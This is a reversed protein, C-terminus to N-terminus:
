DNEFEKAISPKTINGNKDVFGDLATKDIAGVIQTQIWRPIPQYPNISPQTIRDQNELMQIRHELDKIKEQLDKVLVENTKIVKDKNAIKYLLQRIDYLLEKKTPERVTM